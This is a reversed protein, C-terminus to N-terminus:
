KVIVQFFLFSNLHTHARTCQSALLSFIPHMLMFITATLSIITDSVGYIAVLEKAQPIFTEYPIGNVFTATCFLALVVWRYPYERYQKAM